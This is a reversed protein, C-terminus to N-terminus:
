RRGGGRGVRPLVVRRAQRRPDAVGGEVGLAGVVEVVDEALAEVLHLPARVLGEEAGRRGPRRRRRRRRRRPPPPPPRHHVGVVHHPPGEPLVQRLQLRRPGEGPVPVRIRSESLSESVPSPFLSPYPVRLASPNARARSEAHFRFNRTEARFPARLPASPPPPSGGPPFRPRAPAPAGFRRRPEPMSAGIHSRSYSVGVDRCEWVAGLSPYPESVGVHSRVTRRSPRSGAAARSIRRNMRFMLACVCVSKSEALRARRRPPPPSM